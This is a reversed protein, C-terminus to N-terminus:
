DAPLGLFKPEIGPLPLPNREEGGLGNDLQFLPNKELSYLLQFMFSVVDM